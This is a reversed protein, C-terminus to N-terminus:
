LIHLEKNHLIGFQKCVKNNKLGLIKRFVKNEYAQLKYEKQM